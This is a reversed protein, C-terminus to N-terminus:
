ALLTYLFYRTTPSISKAIFYKVIEVTGHICSYLLLKPNEDEWVAQWVFKDVAETPQPQFVNKSEQKKRQARCEEPVYLISIHTCLTYIIICMITSLLSPM